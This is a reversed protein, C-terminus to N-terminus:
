MIHSHKHTYAQIDSLKLLYLLASIAEMLTQISLRNHYLQNIAENRIPFRM